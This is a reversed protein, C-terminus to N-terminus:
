AARWRQGKVIGSVVPQSVNFAAAIARQSHGAAAWARIWEAGHRDLKAHGRRPGRGGAGPRRVSGRSRRQVNGPVVGKELARALKMLRVRMADGHSLDNLDGNTVEEVWAFRASEAPGWKMRKEM